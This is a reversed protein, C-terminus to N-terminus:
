ASSPGSLRAPKQKFPAGVSKSTRMMSTNDQEFMPLVPQLDGAIHKKNSGQKEIHGDPLANPLEYCLASLGLRVHTEATEPPERRPSDM